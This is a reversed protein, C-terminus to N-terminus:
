HSSGTVIWDPSTILRIDVDAFDILEWVCPSMTTMLQFCTKVIISRYM